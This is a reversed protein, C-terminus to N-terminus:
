NKSKAPKKKRKKLWATLDEDERVEDDSKVAKVATKLAPTPAKRPAEARSPAASSITSTVAASERRQKAAAAQAVAM